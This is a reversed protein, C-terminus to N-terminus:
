YYTGRQGKDANRVNWRHIFHLKEKIIYITYIIYM